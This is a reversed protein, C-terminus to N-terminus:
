RPSREPRESWTGPCTDFFSPFSKAVCEAGAIVLGPRRLGLLAGAFALRHDNRTDLVIGTGDRLDRDGKFPAQVVMGDHHAVVGLGATELLAALDTIRDSEKHRLHPANEIRVPEPTVDALAALVPALDPTNGVDFTGGRQVRGSATVGEDSMGVTMGLTRLHRVIAVDPQASRPDLGAVTVPEDIFAASALLPAAGSWDGGAHFMLPGSPAAPPVEIDRGEVRVDVGAHRLTALTLEVYGDSVGRASAPVRIGRDFWAGVLLLASLFQSSVSGGADTCRGGVAPGGVVAPLGPGGSVRAGLAGLTALLPYTARKSLTPGGTVTVDRGLTAALALLFRAPAAGDPIHLTVPATALLDVPSHVFVTGDAMGITAGLARLAHIFGQVDDPLLGDHGLMGGTRALITLARLAESKSLPARVQWSGAPRPVGAVVDM